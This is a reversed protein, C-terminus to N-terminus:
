TTNRYSLYARIVTEAMAMINDQCARKKPSCLRNCADVPVLVTV